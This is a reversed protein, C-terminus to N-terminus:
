IIYQFKKHPIHLTLMGDCGIIGLLSNASRMDDLGVEFYPWGFHVLAYKNGFRGIIIGQGVWIKDIKNKSNGIFCVTEVYYEETKANRVRRILPTDM